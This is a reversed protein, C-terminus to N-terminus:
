LTIEFIEERIAAVLASRSEELLGDRNTIVCLPSGTTYSAAVAYTRALDQQKQVEDVAQQGYWPKGGTKRRRALIEVPDGEVLVIRSPNLNLVIEAPLGPLYGRNSLILCRSDVLTQPGLSAIHDCADLMIRRYTQLDKRRLEGISEAIGQDVAIKTMAHGFNVVSYDGGLVEQAEQALSSKGSGTVGTILILTDGMTGGAADGGRPAAGM